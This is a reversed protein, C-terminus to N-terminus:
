KAPKPESEGERVIAAVASRDFKLKVNDAVQILLTKEDTGAVVGHLGGATVVKDGKKVAALMKEREKRQKSQPRIIMFWFILIMLAFMILTFMGSQGDQGGSPAMALFHIM